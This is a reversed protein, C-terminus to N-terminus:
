RLKELSLLRKEIDLIKKAKLGAPRDQKIKDEDIKTKRIEAEVPNLAPKIVPVYEGPKRSPTPPLPTTNSVDVNKDINNNNNNIDNGQGNEQVSVDVPAVPIVCSNVDDPKTKESGLDAPNEISGSENLQRSPVQPLLAGTEDTGGDGMWDSNTEVKVGKEKAQVDVPSVPIAGSNDDDFHPKEPIVEIGMKVREDRSPMITFSNIRDVSNEIEFVRKNMFNFDKILYENTKALEHEMAVLRNEIFESNLPGSISTLAKKPGSGIETIDNTVSNLTTEFRKFDLRARNTSDSVSEKLRTFNIEMKEMRSSMEDIRPVVNKSMVKFEAFDNKVSYVVENIDRIYNSVNENMEVLLKSYFNNIQEFLHKEQQSVLRVLVGEMDVALNKRMLAIETRLDIINNAIIPLFDDDQSSKFFSEKGIMDFNIEPLFRELEDNFKKLDGVIKKNQAM